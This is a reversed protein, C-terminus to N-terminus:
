IPLKSTPEYRLEVCPIRYEVASKLGGITDAMCSIGLHALFDEREEEPWECPDAFPCPVDEREWITGNWNLIVLCPPGGIAKDPDLGRVVPYHDDYTDQHKHGSVLCSIVGCEIFHDLWVQEDVSMTFIPCHAVALLNQAGSKELDELLAKSEDTLVQRSNDLIIINDLRRNADMMQLVEARNASTRLEANGPANLFPIGTARLKEMLRKAAGTTGMATMDGAGVILDVGRRKAEALAWDFVPEKVTDTREPLHM